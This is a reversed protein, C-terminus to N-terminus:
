CVLQTQQWGNNEPNIRNVGDSDVGYCGDNTDVGSVSVGSDEWTNGCSYVPECASLLGYRCGNGFKNNMIRINQPCVMGEAISSDKITVFIAFNGGNCWNNVIDIDSVQGVESQIIFCANSRTGTDEGERDVPIDFNNCRFTSDGGERVQIGDAHPAGPGNGIPHHVWNGEVINNNSLKLADKWSMSM